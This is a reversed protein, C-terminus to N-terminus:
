AIESSFVMLKPASCLLKLNAYRPSLSSVSNGNEDLTAFGRSFSIATLGSSSMSGNFKVWKNIAM